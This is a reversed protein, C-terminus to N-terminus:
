AVPGPQATQGDGIDSRVPLAPSVTQAPPPAPVGGSHTKLSQWPPWELKKLKLAHKEIIWWSAFAFPATLLFTVIMFLTFGLRDGNLIILLCTVPFAYIYVGYSYDNKAGIRQFPLHAGLWLMPYVILIAGLSSATLGQTPTYGYTPLYLSAVFAVGTIGALWGSDPVRERYLYVLSGGLFIVSLVMFQMPITNERTTFLGNLHHNLTTTALVAGLILAVVATWIRNRLLGVAALVGLLLYCLFEYMLTWLSLDGIAAAPGRHTVWPQNLRLYANSFVYSLPGPHLRLLCGIDCRPSARFIWVTPAIVFATVLLCIWFAPFIRLFRQWLYRGFGNRMASGTILYGSIGFFGYVSITGLSTGNIVVNRYGLWGLECAHSYVVGLALVLRIFNLSNNKPDLASGISRDREPWRVTM